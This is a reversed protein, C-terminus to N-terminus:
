SKWTKRQSAIRAFLKWEAKLGTQWHSVGFLRRGYNIKPRITPLNLRSLKYTVFADFDVGSPAGIVLNNVSKRDIVTPTGGFDRMDALLIVSLLYGAFKSKINDLVGSRVRYGKGCDNGSELMCKYVTIADDLGVKLNAPM